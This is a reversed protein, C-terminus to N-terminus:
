KRENINILSQTGSRGGLREVAQGGPRRDLRAAALGGSRESSRGRSRAGSLEVSVLGGLRKVEPGGSLAGGPRGDTPGM